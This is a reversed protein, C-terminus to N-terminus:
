LHYPILENAWPDILGEYDTKVYKKKVCNIEIPDPLFQTEESRKIFKFKFKVKVELKNPSKNIELIKGELEESCYSLLIKEEPSIEKGLLIKEGLIESTKYVLFESFEKTKRKELEEKSPTLSNNQERNANRLLAREKKQKKNM